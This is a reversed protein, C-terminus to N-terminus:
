RTASGVYNESLIHQFRLHMLVQFYRGSGSLSRGKGTRPWTLPHRTLWPERNGAVGVDGPSPQEAGHGLSRPWPSRRASRRGAGRPPAGESLCGAAGGGGRRSWARGGALRRGAERAQAEAAAAEKQHWLGANEEELEAQQRATRQLQQSLSELQVVLDREAAEKQGLAEQLGAKEVKFGEIIGPSVPFRRQRPRAWGWCSPPCRPRAPGAGPLRQLWWVRRCGRGGGGVHCQSSWVAPALALATVAPVGPAGGRTVVDGSCCCSPTGPRSREAAEHPPGPLEEWLRRAGRGARSRGRGQGLRGAEPREGEAKHLELTLRTRAVSEEELRGRLARHERVVQAVEEAKCGSEKELRAHVQRAEELQWPANSFPSRADCATSACNGGM